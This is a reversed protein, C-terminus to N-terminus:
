FIVMPTNEDDDSNTRVLKLVMPQWKAQKESRWFRIFYPSREQDLTEDYEVLVRVDALMALNIMSVQEFTPDAKFLTPYVTDKGWLWSETQGLQVISVHRLSVPQWVNIMTADPVIAGWHPDIQLIEKVTSLQKSSGKKHAPHKAGGTKLLRQSLLRKDLELGRESMYSILSVTDNAAIATVAGEIATLLDVREVEELRDFSVVRDNIPKDNNNANTAIPSFLETLAGSAEEFSVSPMEEWESVRQNRLMERNDYFQNRTPQHFLYWVGVNVGIILALLSVGIIQRRDM